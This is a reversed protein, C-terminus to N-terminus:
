NSYKKLSLLLKLSISDIKKQFNHLINENKINGDDLKQETM